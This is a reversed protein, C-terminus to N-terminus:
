SEAEEVQTQKEFLERYLGDHSILQDHTGEEVIQGDILV